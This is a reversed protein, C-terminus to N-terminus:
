GCALGPVVLGSILMYKLVTAVGLELWPVLQGSSLSYCYRGAPAHQVSPALLPRKTVTRCLLLCMGEVGPGPSPDRSISVQLLNGGDEKDWM